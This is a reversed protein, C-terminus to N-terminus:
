QADQVLWGALLHEKGKLVYGCWSTAKKDLCRVCNKTQRRLQMVPM